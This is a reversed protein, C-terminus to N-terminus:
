DNKRALACAGLAGSHDGLASAEIRITHEPDPRLFRDRATERIPGVFTEGLRQAVGGGIVIVQPDLTNVINGALLGLYRQARSLVEKMVTDDAKLARSIVSSTMRTKERDKMIMPVVSERGAAVAAMVDREMATRSALAEICGNRGCSCVPGGDAVFTHGLEGAAGRYGRDLEGNIILGGGIGTGVWIGVARSAGKAAGFAHEGLIAVQVDNGVSVKNDLKMSLMPGLPVDLWGLNPAKAVIGLKPDVAGPAGIGIGDIQKRKIKADDAALLVQDAIFSILAEPPLERPTPSSASGLVKGRTNAIVAIMSTGGLDIGAFLKAM